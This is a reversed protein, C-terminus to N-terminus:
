IGLSGGARLKYQYIGELNTSAQTDLSQFAHQVSDFIESSMEGRIHLSHKMRPTTYSALYPENDIESNPVAPTSIDYSMFYWSLRWGIVTYAFFSIFHGM